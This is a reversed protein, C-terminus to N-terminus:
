GAATKKLLYGALSLSATGSALIISCIVLLGSSIVALTDLSGLVALVLTGLVAAWIIFMYRMISVPPVKMGKRREIALILFIVPFIYILSYLVAGFIMVTVSAAEPSFSMLVSINQSLLIIYLLPILCVQMVSKVLPHNEIYRAVSPSFSYYWLNFGEVFRSGSYSQRIMGDRYERVLQVESAMPSGYTATAILCGSGGGTKSKYGEATETASREMAEDGPDGRQHYVGSKRQYISARHANATSQLTKDSTSKVSDLAANYYGLANKYDGRKACNDGYEMLTYYDSTAPHRPELVTAVGNNINAVVMGLASDPDPNKEAHVVPIVLICLGLLVFPLLFRYGVRINM